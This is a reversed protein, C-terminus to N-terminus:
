LSFIFAKIFGAQFSITHFPRWAGLAMFTTFAVPIEELLISMALTLAKLLSDLLLRSRLYNIGWVIAFVLVGALVMKKVFNNVQLELPTKEQQITELRRGITGLRTKNGIATVLAVAHGSAM